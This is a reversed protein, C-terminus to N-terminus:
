NHKTDNKIENIQKIKIKTGLYTENKRFEYVNTEQTPFLGYKATESIYKKNLYYFIEKPVNIKEKKLNEIKSFPIFHRLDIIEWIQEKEPYYQKEKLKYIKLSIDKQKNSCILIYKNGLYQSNDYIKSIKTNGRPIYTTEPIFKSFYRAFRKTRQNAHKSCVIEM